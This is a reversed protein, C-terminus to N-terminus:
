LRHDYPYPNSYFDEQRETEEFVTYDEFIEVVRRTEAAYKDLEELAERYYEKLYGEAGPQPIRVLERTVRCEFGGEM